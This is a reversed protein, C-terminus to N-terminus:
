EDVELALKVLPGAKTTRTFADNAERWATPSRFIVQADHGIKRL